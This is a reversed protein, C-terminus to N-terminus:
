EIIHWGGERPVIEKRRELQAVASWLALNQHRMQHTLLAINAERQSRLDWTVLFAIALVLIVGLIGLVVPLVELAREHGAQRAAERIAAREAAARTNAESRQEYAAAEARVKDAEAQTRQAQADQVVSGCRNIALAGVVVFALVAVILLAAGAGGNDGM